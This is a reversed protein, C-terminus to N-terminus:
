DYAISYHFVLKELTHRKHVRDSIMMTSMYLAHSAVAVDAYWLSCVCKFSFRKSIDLYMKQGM